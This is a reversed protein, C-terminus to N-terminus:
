EQLKKKFTPELITTFYQHSFYLIFGVNCIRHATLLFISIVNVKRERLYVGLVKFTKTKGDDGDIKVM